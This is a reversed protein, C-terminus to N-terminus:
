PELVGATEGEIAIRVEQIFGFQKLTESVQGRIEAVRTSGGGYARLERSFDATAVGDQVVLQRLRVRSGWEPERGAYALVEDPTPLATTYGALRGPPPGWLLEELVADVTDHTLPPMRRLESQLTEGKCWYLTVTEMDAEGLMTVTETALVEGRADRVEVVAPQTPPEPPRQGPALWDLSDVLLGKNDPGRRLTLTNELTTGDQWRLQAVVQEGPEGLTAELHLPLTHGRAGRVPVM